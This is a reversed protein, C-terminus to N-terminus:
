LVIDLVILLIVSSVISFLIITGASCVINTVCFPVLVLMCLDPAHM